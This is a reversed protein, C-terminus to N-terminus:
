PPKWSDPRPRPRITDEPLNRVAVSSFAAPTTRRGRASRHPPEGNCPAARHPRAPQRAAAHRHDHTPPEQDPVGEPGYPEVDRTPHRTEPTDVGTLRATSRTGDRQVCIPDGDIVQDVQALGTQALVPGGALGALVALAVVLRRLRCARVAPQPRTTRHDM